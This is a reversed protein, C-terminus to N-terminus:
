RSQAWVSCRSRCSPSTSLKIIAHFVRTDTSEYESNVRQAKKGIYNAQIQGVRALVKVLVDPSHSRRM